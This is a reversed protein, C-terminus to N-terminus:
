GRPARDVPVPEPGRQDVDLVADVRYVSRGGDEWYVTVGPFRNSPSSDHITARDVSVSAITRTRFPLVVVDGPRLDAAPIETRPENNM